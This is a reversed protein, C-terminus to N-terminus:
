PCTVPARPSGDSATGVTGAGCVNRRRVLYHVGHGAAPVDADQASPQALGPAICTMGATGGESLLSSLDGRLLDWSLGPEGAGELNWTISTTTEGTLEVGTTEAPPSSVSPDGPACDAANAAGDGDLDPDCADGVGDGDLDQQAANPITVCNDATNPVGDTDGDALVVTYDDELLWQDPDFIVQTPQVPVPPLAADLSAGNVDLTVDLASGAMVRLTVPMQFPVGAQIQDIRVHTVWGAPTSAATWGWQYTPEGAQTVWRSFFSDLDRGSASEMAAQFDATSANDFHHAEEYDRMGEFFATDGVIRRLMHLVWAGKDYVTNGFLGCTPAYVPGCFPRSDLSNMYARLGPAAYLHEWWLAESYTAFGENLWIDDWTAPSVSDGWWQHAMEHAVIWDNQHTGKISSAGYSTATQHEMGGGFPFIAHGYKEDVFPYEVFRTSFFELLPVTVSFDVQAMALHEPYVWHQVLMAPGGTVPQYSDTWTAYNSIALSVLYTSIPYSSRWQYTVTGDGQPLTATLLGNSVAVMGGPVNVDMSVISKDAPHDICPWWSTAYTPESLSSIIPEAGNHTLFRFSGYGVVPPTGGYTITVDVMEGAAYPRNLTIAVMNSARTFALPIVGAKISSIAMVDYLGVDLRTLGATLSRAEIRVTGEVRKAPAPIVKLALTYRQVDVPAGPALSAAELARAMEEDRVPDRRGHLQRREAATPPPRVARDGPGAATAAPRVPVVTLILCILVAAPPFRRRM